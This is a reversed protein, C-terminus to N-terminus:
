KSVSYNIGNVPWSTVIKFSHHLINMGQSICKEGEGTDGPVEDSSQM